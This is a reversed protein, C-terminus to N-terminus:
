HSAVKTGQLRSLADDFAKPAFGSIRREGILVQPVGTAGLQKFQALAQPDAQIDREVYAVKRTAFYERAKACYPCSQTSYMVVRNPTDGYYASYDGEITNSKFLAPVHTLAYGLGLGAALFCLYQLVTKLSKM